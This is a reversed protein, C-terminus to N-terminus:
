IGFSSRDGMCIPCAQYKKTSWRSLDGYTSFDNIMWLLAAYLQFFQGTLSDYMRMGFNWLEKLEEILPKLYVDIERGPSRPSPAIVHLLKVREHM